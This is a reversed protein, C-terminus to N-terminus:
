RSSFTLGMPPQKGMMIWIGTNMANYQTSSDLTSIRLAGQIKHILSRDEGSGKKMRGMTMVRVVMSCVASLGAGGSGMCALSIHNMGSTKLTINKKKGAPRTSYQIVLLMRDIAWCHNILVRIPTGGCNLRGFNLYCLLPRQRPGKVNRRM